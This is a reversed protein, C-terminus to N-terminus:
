WIFPILAWTRKKYEEYEKGFQGDLARDEIVIRRVLSVLGAALLVIISLWNGIGIGFGLLTILMGTYSPNRLYKYPGSTILTHGEQIVVKTRFFKGLTRIAWLRFLMGAWILAIGFIFLAAGNSRFGFQQALYPIIFIGFVIGLFLSVINVTRSGRDKSDDKVSSRDRVILWIEFGLWCWYSVTIIITYMLSEYIFSTVM